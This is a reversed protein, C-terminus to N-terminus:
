DIRVRGDTILKKITNMFIFAFSIKTVKLKDCAERYGMKHNIHDLIVAEVEPTIEVKTM